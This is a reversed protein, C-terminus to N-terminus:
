NWVCIVSLAIWTIRCWVLYYIYLAM